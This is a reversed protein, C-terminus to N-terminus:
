VLMAHKPSAAPTALRAIQEDGEKKAVMEGQVVCGACRTCLDLRAKSFAETEAFVREAEKPVPKYAASLATLRLFGARTRLVIM